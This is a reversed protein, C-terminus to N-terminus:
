NEEDTLDVPESIVELTGKKCISAVNKHFDMTTSIYGSLAEVSQHVTTTQLSVSVNFVNGKM